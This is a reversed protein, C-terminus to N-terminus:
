YCIVGNGSPACYTRTRGAAAPSPASRREASAATQICARWPDTNPQHGLKECYPGYSSIHREAREAPTACGALFVLLILYRM